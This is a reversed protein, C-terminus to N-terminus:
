YSIEHSYVLSYARSYDESIPKDDSLKILKTMSFTKSKELKRCNHIVYLTGLSEWDEDKTEEVVYTILEDKRRGDPDVLVEHLEAVYEVYGKGDVTAFYLDLPKPKRNTVAYAASVWRKSARFTTPEDAARKCAAALYQGHNRTFVAIKKASRIQSNLSM